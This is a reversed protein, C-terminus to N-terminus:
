PSERKTKMRSKVWAEADGPSGLAGLIRRRYCMSSLERLTIAIAGHRIAEERKSMAIDYHSDHRPPAQWWRKAVGIKAAMAHLEEDSDAVMHSMKMRGFKGMPYLHMDDVYVAM